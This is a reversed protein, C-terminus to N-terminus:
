LNLLSNTIKALTEEDYHESPTYIETYFKEEYSSLSSNFDDFQKEYKDLDEKKFHIVKFFDHVLEKIMSIHNLLSYDDLIYFAMDKISSFSFFENEYIPENLLIDEISEFSKKIDLILEDISQDDKHVIKEVNSNIFEKLKELAYVISDYVKTEQYNNYKPSSISNKLILSNNIYEM